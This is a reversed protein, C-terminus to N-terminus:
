TDRTALCAETMLPHTSNIGRSSPLKQSRAFPLSATKV